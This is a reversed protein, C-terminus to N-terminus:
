CMCGSIHVHAQVSAVPEPARLLALRAHLPVAANERCQGVTGPRRSLMTSTCQAGHQHMTSICQAGHQHMTSTRLTSTCFTITCCAATRLMSTRLMSTFRVATRRVRLVRQRCGCLSASYLIAQLPLTCYRRNPWLV